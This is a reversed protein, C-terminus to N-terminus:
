VETEMGFFFTIRKHYKENHKIICTFTCTYVFMNAARLFVCNSLFFDYELSNFKKEKIQSVYVFCVFIHLIKICKKKVLKM